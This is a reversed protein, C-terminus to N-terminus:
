NDSACSHQDVAPPVCACCGVYVVKGGCQDLCTNAVLCEGIDCTSSRGGKDNNAGGQNAGGQSAGGQSAGGQSAGGQNAGGQSAGGQSAGGQSAGGQSAGGQSAGGQGAGSDDSPAGADESTAGGAGRSGSSSSCGLCLALAAFGLSVCRKIWPRPASSM